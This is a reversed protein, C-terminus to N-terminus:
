NLSVRDLRIEVVELMGALEPEERDWMAVM